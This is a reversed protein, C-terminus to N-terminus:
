RPIERLGREAVALATAFHEAKEELRFAEYYIPGYWPVHTMLYALVRRAVDVRGARAEMLAGELVTRWVKEIGTHRLRGLLERSGPGNREEHKVAKILLSESYECFALGRRLIRACKRLAGCEEELKAYELWGQSAFPQTATVTRYLRRAEVFRSERKALDAMELYLRWHVKRPLVAFCELAFQKAAEFSTKEKARFERYFDKFALRTAPSEVLDARRQCIEDGTVVTLLHSAAHDLISHKGGGGGGRGGGGGGTAIAGDGGSAGG